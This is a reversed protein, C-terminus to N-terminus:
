ERAASPPWTMEAQSQMDGHLESQIKRAERGQRAHLRQPNGGFRAKGASQGCRRMTVRMQSYRRISPTELLYGSKYVAIDVTERRESGLERVAKIPSCGLGQSRSRGWSAVLRCRV